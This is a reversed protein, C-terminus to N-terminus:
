QLMKRMVSIGLGDSIANKNFQNVVVLVAKDQGKIFAAFISFGFTGGNHWCITPQGVKELLHWGRGIGIGPAADGTKQTLLEVVQKETTNPPFSMNHLYDLMATPTAKLVCAGALADAAWYPAVTATDFYGTAAPENEVRTKINHLDLPQLVLEQLLQAYSKGTLRSGITGAIGFGLNSYSYTGTNGAKVTQLYTFLQTTDYGEYPQMSLLNMNDPLRPLGSHHNLLDLIEIRTLSPNSALSGPLVRTIPITDALGDSALIKELLYATFTKTISGIEFFMSSDFVAKTSKDAYGASYFFRNGNDNIAVLVGPVKQQQFISDTKERIFAQMATESTPQAQCAELMGLALLAAIAIKSLVAM